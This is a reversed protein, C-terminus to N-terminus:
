CPVDHGAIINAKPLGLGIRVRFWAATPLIPTEQFSQSCKGQLTSLIVSSQFASLTQKPFKLM